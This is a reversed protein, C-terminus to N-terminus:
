LNIRVTIPRAYFLDDESFSQLLVDIANKEMAFEDIYVVSGASNACRGCQCV